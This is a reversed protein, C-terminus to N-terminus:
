KVKFRFLEKSLIRNRKGDRYDEWSQMLVGIFAIVSIVLTLIGFIISLVFVLMTSLVVGVDVVVEQEESFNDIYFAAGLLLFGILGSIIWIM